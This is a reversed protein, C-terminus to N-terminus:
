KLEKYTNAIAEILVRTDRPVRVVDTKYPAQKGRGGKFEVM